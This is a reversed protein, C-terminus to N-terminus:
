TLARQKIENISINEDEKISYGNRYQKMLHYENLSFPYDKKIFRDIIKKTIFGSIFIMSSLIILSMFHYNSNLIIESAMFSTLGFSMLFLLYYDAYDFKADFLIKKATEKNLIICDNEYGEKIHAEVKEFVVLDITDGIKIGEISCNTQYRKNDDFTIMYELTDISTEYFSGKRKGVSADISKIKGRVIKNTM